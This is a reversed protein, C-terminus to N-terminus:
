HIKNRGGDRRRFTIGRWKFKYWGTVGDLRGGRFLYQWKYASGAVPTGAAVLVTVAGYPDYVFREVVTGTAADVLATTDFNADQQASLQQVREGDQYDDRAVLANVYALSWVYEHSVDREGAAGDRREEIM